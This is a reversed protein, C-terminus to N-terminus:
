FLCTWCYRWRQALYAYHDVGNQKLYKGDGSAIVAGSLDFPAKILDVSREYLQLLKKDFSSDFVTKNIRIDNKLSNVLWNKREEQYLLDIPQSRM